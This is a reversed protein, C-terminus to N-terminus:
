ALRRALRQKLGLYDWRGTVVDAFDRLEYEARIDIRPLAYVDAASTVPGHLGSVASAYGADKV